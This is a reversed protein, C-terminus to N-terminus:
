GASQAMTCFQTIWVWVGCLWLGAISPVTTAGGPACSILHCALDPKDTQATGLGQHIRLLYERAQPGLSVFGRGGILPGIHHHDVGAAEDGRRHLLRERGDAFGQRLVTLHNHGAAQPGPGLDDLLGVRLHELDGAGALYVPDQSGYLPHNGQLLIGKRGQNGRLDLQGGAVVGVQLNRFAAVVLAAEADDGLQAAQLLAAVGGLNEELGGPQHAGAGLLQQYDGLVGRGIPHIDAVAGGVICALLYPGVQHIQDVLQGPQPGPQPQVVDVGVGM